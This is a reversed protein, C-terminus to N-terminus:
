SSRVLEILAARRAPTAHPDTPLGVLEAGVREAVPCSGPRYGYRALDADREVPYIPARLPWAILELRRRRAAELLAPKRATRVPFYYLPESPRPIPLSVDSAGALGEAYHACAERRAAVLAPVLDLSALGRAIQRESARVAARSAEHLLEQELDAERHFPRLARNLSWLPWYLPPRMLVAHVLTEAALAADDARRRRPLADREAAIRDALEADRVTALAGSGAPLPKRLNNSYIAAVGRLPQARPLCQARDEILALAASQAIEAIEELGASGGYTHQFLVAKPRASLAARLAGPALNLTEPDVDAYVPEIHEALLALVVVRCTLPALVVRDGPALGLGRLIGRLAQRAFGYAIAHPAATLEAFRREYSSSAHVASASESPDGATQERSRTLLVV